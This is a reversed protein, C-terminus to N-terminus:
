LDWPPATPSTPVHTTLLESNRPFQFNPTLQIGAPNMASIPIDVIGMSANGSYVFSRNMGQALFKNRNQTEEPSQNAGVLNEPGIKLRLKSQLQPEFVFQSSRM